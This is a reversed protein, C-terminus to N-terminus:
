CNSSGDSSGKKEMSKFKGLEQPINYIKKAFVLMNKAAHIDRNEQYGCDCSYERKSLSVKNLSGCAPCMQTTPLTHNLQIYRHPEINMHQQLKEKFLGLCSHQIKRGFGKMKSKKWKALLEDQWVIIDYNTDLKHVLQNVFERKRNAIKANAKQLNIRLKRRNNSGVRSKSIKRQFKKIQESEGISFNIKEGSSLVINDKIGMDIGVEKNTNIHKKIEKKCIIAIYFNGCSRILKASKIEANKLQKTGLCSIPNKKIGPIKLKNGIINYGSADKYLTLCNIESKYKLKGVTNGQKKIKSLKKISAWIDRVVEGRIASPITLTVPVKEGKNNLKFIDKTKRDFEFINKQSLVHNYLCKAEYFYQLLKITQEKNPKLKLKYSQIIKM